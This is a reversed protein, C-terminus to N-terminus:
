ASAADVWRLVNQKLVGLPVAGNGLVPGHFNGIDFRPRLRQEATRRMRVTERRGIMYALV